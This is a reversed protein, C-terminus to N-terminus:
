LLDACGVPSERPLEVGVLHCAQFWLYPYIRLLPHLLDVRGVRLESPSAYVRRPARPRHGLIQNRLENARYLQVEFLSAVYRGEAGAEMLTPPREELITQPGLWRADAIAFGMRGSPPRGLEPRRVM